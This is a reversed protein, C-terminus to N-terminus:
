ASYRVHLAHNPMSTVNCLGAALVAASLLMMRLFIKKM